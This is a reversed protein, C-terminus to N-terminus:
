EYYAVIIGWGESQLHTYSVPEACDYQALVKGYKKFAEDTIKQIKM